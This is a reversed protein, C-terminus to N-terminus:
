QTVAGPPRVLGSKGIMDFVRDEIAFFQRGVKGVAGYLVSSKAAALDRFFVGMWPGVHATYFAAEVGLRGAEDLANNAATDFGGRILSAMMALICAASDEPERNLPDHRLGLRAMDVRLRALPKEQLFGTMYYSAYPILEGRGVGTFLDFHERLAGDPDARKAAASLAQFAQGLPTSDGTLGGCLTLLELDPASGLLHALLAYINARAQDEPALASQPRALAAGTGIEEGPQRAVAAM